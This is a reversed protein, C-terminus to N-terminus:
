PELRLVHRSGVPSTNEFDFIRPSTETITSLCIECSCRGRLRAFRATSQFNFTTTRPQTQTQTTTTPTQKPTTPDQARLAWFGGIALFTGLMVLLFMQRLM